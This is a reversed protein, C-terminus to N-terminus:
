KVFLILYEYQKLEGDPKLRKYKGKPCDVDFEGAKDDKTRWDINVNCDTFIFNELNNAGIEVGCAPCFNDFMAKRVNCTGPSRADRCFGKQICVIGYGFSQCYSECFSNFCKVNFNIGKGATMYDPGSKAFDRTEFCNESTADLLEFNTFMRPTNNSAM